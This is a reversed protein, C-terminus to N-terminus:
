RVHRARQCSSGTNPRRRTRPLHVCSFSLSDVEGQQREDVRLSGARLLRAVVHRHYPVAGTAPTHRRAAALWALLNDEHGVGADNLQLKDGGVHGRIM